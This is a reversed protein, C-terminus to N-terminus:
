AVVKKNKLAKYIKAFFEEVKYPKPIIDNFGAVYFDDINEDITVATLALIPIEKDFQRIQETAEIGSIGPMHIDMLVLDYSENRVKEVSIEGNDAVDCSLKNKELIKRTIMQNIKNDEVVLIHKGELAVYDVDYIIGHPNEKANSKTLGYKIDFAFISGKGLTSELMIRSGVLDLLNKVISLGLGTGGFKRNVQVSGQTFNQFINKQKKKSIGEGTDEVEFHLVVDKDTKNVINVRISVTGDSTFKVANGVLNILIQSIMLPDGIVEDPIAKDFELEFRNGKDQASKELAFLVDDIRKRLNFPTQEVEVKSAELKNLDLINNILSLLYEGSFKLSDLHKKQEETPNESLLLHTLGTVAYMPTRLEHTITSLFQAKVQSAKEANEKAIILESNKAQLLENAKARLNNNKYLSLILLSLITLLAIGLVTTLKGVEVTRETAMGKSNLNAIIANKEALDMATAPPLELYAQTQEEIKALRAYYAQLNTFAQEYDGKSNAIVSLIRHSEAELRPFNNLKSLEFAGDIVTKAQDFYEMVVLVQAKDVSTKALLYKKDETTFIDIAKDYYLIAAERDELNSRLDGKAKYVKALALRDNEKEFIIEARDLYDGAKEYDGTSLQVQSYILYSNALGIEEGIENLLGMARVSELSAKDYDGMQYYLLALTTSTSGERKKNDIRQALDRAQELTILSKEYNLNEINVVAASLLSDIQANVQEIQTKQQAQGLSSFLLFFLSIFVGLFARM